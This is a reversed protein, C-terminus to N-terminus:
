TVSEALEFLEKMYGLLLRRLYVHLLHVPYPFVDGERRLLASWM